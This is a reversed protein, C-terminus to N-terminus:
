LGESVGRAELDRAAQAAREPVHGDIDNVLGRLDPLVDSGGYASALGCAWERHRPLSDARWRLCGAGRQLLHMQSYRGRRKRGFMPRVMLPFRPSSVISTPSRGSRVCPVCSVVRTSEEGADILRLISDHAATVRKVAAAECASRVVAGHADSLLHCLIADLRNGEPHIDIAEVAIRRVHPDPSEVSARLVALAPEGPTHALAVFAAWRAPIPGDVLHALEEVTAGYPVQVRNWVEPRNQM